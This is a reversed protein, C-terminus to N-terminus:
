PYPWEWRRDGNKIESGSLAAAREGAIDTIKARNEYEQM